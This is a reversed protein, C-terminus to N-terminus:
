RCNSELFNKLTVMMGNKENERNQIKFKRIESIKEGLNEIEYCVIIMKERELGKAIDM